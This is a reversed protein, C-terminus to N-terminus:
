RHRDKSENSMLQLAALHMNTLKGLAYITRNSGDYLEKITHLKILDLVPISQSADPSLTLSLVPLCFNILRSINFAQRQSGVQMSRSIHSHNSHHNSYRQIFDSYGGLRKGVFIFCSIPEGIEILMLQRAKM